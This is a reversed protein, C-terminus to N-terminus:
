KRSRRAPVAFVARMRGKLDVVRALNDYEMGAAQVETAGQTVRVPLHSRVRETALFVHLFDGRFEIAEEAGTAERIVHAGVLLQVESGDGNALAREASALTVRGSAAISRIRPHEIELTDTDPYHLAVDGEIQTRMTGDRAFRQVVFERMTYDPDHRPPVEAGPGGALPTNEVLWWSLLALLAMVLLPLYATVLGGLRVPWPAAPVRFAVALPTAATAENM